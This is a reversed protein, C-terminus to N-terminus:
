LLVYFECGKVLSKWMQKSGSQWGSSFTYRVEKTPALSLFFNDLSISSVEWYNWSTIDSYAISVDKSVVLHPFIVTQRTYLNKEKLAM